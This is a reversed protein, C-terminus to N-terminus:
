CSITLLLTFYCLVFVFLPNFKPKTRKNTNKENCRLVIFFVVLINNYKNLEIM